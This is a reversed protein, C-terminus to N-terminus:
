SPIWGVITEESSFPVIANCGWQGNWGAQLDRGTAQRCTFRGYSDGSVLSQRRRLSVFPPYMACCDSKRIVALPGTPNSQQSPLPNGFQSGGMKLIKPVAGAVTAVLFVLLM